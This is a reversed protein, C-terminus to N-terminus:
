FHMLELSRFTDSVSDGYDNNKLEYLDHIKDCLEKHYEIKNM